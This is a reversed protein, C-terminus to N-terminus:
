HAALQRDVRLGAAAGGQNSSHGENRLPTGRMRGSLFYRHSARVRRFQSHASFIQVFRDDPHRWRRYDTPM